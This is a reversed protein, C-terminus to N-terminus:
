TGKPKTGFLLDQRLNIAEVNVQSVRQKVAEWQEETIETAEDFIVYSGNELQFAPFGSAIRSDTRYLAIQQPTLTHRVPDFEPFIPKESM